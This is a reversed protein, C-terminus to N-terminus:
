GYYAFTLDIGEYWFELAKACFIDKLHVYCLDNMSIYINFIVAGDRRCIVRMSMFAEFPRTSPPIPSASSFGTILMVASFDSPMSTVPVLSCVSRMFFLTERRRGLPSPISMLMSFSYGEWM